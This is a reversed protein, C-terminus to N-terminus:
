VVGGCPVDGIGASHKGSKAFMQWPKRLRDGPQRARSIAITDGGGHEGQELLGVVAMSISSVFGRSFHPRQKQPPRPSSLGLPIEVATM